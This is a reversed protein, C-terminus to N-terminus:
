STNPVRLNLLAILILGRKWGALDGRWLLVLLSVNRLVARGARALSYKLGQWHTDQIPSNSFFDGPLVTQIPTKQM